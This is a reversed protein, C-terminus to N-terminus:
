CLDKLCQTPVPYKSKTMFCTRCSTLGKNKETWKEEEKQFWFAFIFLNRSIYFSTYVSKFHKTLKMAWCFLCMVNPFCVNEAYTIDGFRLLIQCFFVSLVNNFVGLCVLTRFKSNNQCLNIKALVRLLGKELLGKLWHIYAILTIKM